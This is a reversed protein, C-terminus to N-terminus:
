RPRFVAASSPPMGGQRWNRLENRIERLRQLVLPPWNAPSAARHREEPDGLGAHRYHKLHSNILDRIVEANEIGRLIGRHGRTQVTGQAEVADGGGGATRVYLDAIGFMQQIPGQRIELHQVNAYTLTIESITAVGERIRLSRDTILYYRMDYELRTMLAAVLGLLLFSGPLLCIAVRSAATANRDFIVALALVLTPLTFVGFVLSVGLLRYFLFQKSARFVQVSQPSGAPPAPQGAPARLVALLVAKILPYM